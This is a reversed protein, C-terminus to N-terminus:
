HRDNDVRDYAAQIDRPPDENGADPLDKHRADAWRELWDIGDPGVYKDPQRYVPDELARALSVPKLHARRLIKLVDDLADANLRTCHLLMIQAIDRGFLIRASAQAWGIRSSTFSLYQARIRRQAAKDRRAIADDYPEAFEWDDADITVPALQYGHSGLWNLVKNKTELTKGTELYPPRFYRMQEKHSALLGKTIREGRVIDEIYAGAGLENLSPHSYTHNGLEMGADLWRELNAIQHDKELDYIKGENVFGIAPIHHRRLDRLITANLYDVYRQDPLITLAPLDDFTLAVEGPRAAADASPSLILSAVLIALASTSGRKVCVM